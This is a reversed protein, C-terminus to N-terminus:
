LILFQFIENFNNTLFNGLFSIIPEERRRFLLATLSIV